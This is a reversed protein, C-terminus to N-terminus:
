HLVSIGFLNLKALVWWLLAHGCICRTLVAESKSKKEKIIKKPVYDSSYSLSVMQLLVRIVPWLQTWSSPLVRHLIGNNLKHDWFSKKDHVMVLNTILSHTSLLLLTEWYNKVSLCYAKGYETCTHKWYPYIMTKKHPNTVFLLIIKVFRDSLPRTSVDESYHAVNLICYVNLEHNTEMWKYPQSDYVIIVSLSHHMWSNRVLYHFFSSQIKYWSCLVFPKICLVTLFLAQWWWAAFVLM